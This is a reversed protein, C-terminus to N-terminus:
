GCDVHYDGDEPNGVLRFRVYSAGLWIYSYSSGDSVVLELVTAEQGTVEVGKVLTDTRHVPSWGLSNPEDGWRGTHEVEYRQVAQGPVSATFVFVTDGSVPFVAEHAVQLTM